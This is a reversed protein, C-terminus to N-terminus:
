IGRILGDSRPLLHDCVGLVPCHVTEDGAAGTQGADRVTGPCSGHAPCPAPLPDLAVSVVPNPMRSLLSLICYDETAGKETHNLIASM